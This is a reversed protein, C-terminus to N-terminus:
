TIGKMKVLMCDPIAGKSLIISFFFLKVKEILSEWVQQSFKYLNRHRKMYYAIHLSGLM